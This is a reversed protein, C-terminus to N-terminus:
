CLQKRNIDSLVGCLLKVFIAQETLIEKWIQSSCSSVTCCQFFFPLRVTLQDSLGTLRSPHILSKELSLTGTVSNMMPLSDPSTPSSEAKIQGGSVGPLVLSKGAM